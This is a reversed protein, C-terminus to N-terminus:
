ARRQDAFQFHLQLGLLQWLFRGLWVLGGVCDARDGAMAAKGCITEQGIAPHAAASFCDDFVRFGNSVFYAAGLGRRQSASDRDVVCVDFVLRAIAAALFPAKQGFFVIHASRCHVDFAISGM